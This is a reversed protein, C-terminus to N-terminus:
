KKKRAINQYPKFLLNELFTVIDELLDDPVQMFEAFEFMFTPVRLEKTYFKLIFVIDPSKILALKRSPDQKKLFNYLQENLDNKYLSFIVLYSEDPDGDLEEQPLVTFAGKYFSHVDLLGLTKQMNTMVKQHLPTNFEFLSHERNDDVHSRNQHSTVVTSPIKRTYFIKHIRRGIEESSIDCIKEFRNETSKESGSSVRITEICHSHPLTIQFM